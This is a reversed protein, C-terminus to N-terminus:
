LKLELHIDGPELEFLEKNTDRTIECGLHMYFDVTSQSPISSIYLKKAGLEKAKLKTKNVLKKGIGKKRYNKGVHLFELQLQDNNKGIFKNTITAIGVIKENDFAGYVFGGNDYLKYLRSIHEKVKDSNWPPIDYHEKKLKLKGNILYYIREVTEGRDINGVKEIEERAALRIDM